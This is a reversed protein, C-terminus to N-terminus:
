YDSFYFTSYEFVFYDTILYYLPQVVACRKYYRRNWYRRRGTLHASPRRRGRGEIACAGECEEGRRDVDGTSKRRSRCGTPPIASVIGSSFM